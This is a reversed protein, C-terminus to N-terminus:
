RTVHAAAAFGDAANKNNHTWGTATQEQAQLDLM